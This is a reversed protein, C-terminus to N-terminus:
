CIIEDKFIIESLVKYKLGRHYNQYDLLLRKYCFRMQTNVFYFKIGMWSTDRMLMEDTRGEDQQGGM